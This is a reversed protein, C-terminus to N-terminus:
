AAGRIAALDPTSRTSPGLQTIISGIQSLIAPLRGQLNQLLQVDGGSVSSLPTQLASALLIQIEEYLAALVQEASSVDSTSPSTESALAAIASEASAYLEAVQSALPQLGAIGSSTPTAGPAITPNGITVVGPVTIGPISSEVVPSGPASGSSPGNTPTGPSGSPQAPSPGGSSGSPQPPSPGGSSPSLSLSPGAGCDGGNGNSPPSSKGLDNCDNLWVHLAGTPPDVAVYDARGTRPHNLYAFKVNAGAYGVGTAIKQSYPVWNIGVGTDVHYNRWTDISGDLPHVWIYDARGDSHHYTLRTTTKILWRIEGM